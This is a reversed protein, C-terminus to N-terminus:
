SRGGHLSPISEGVAGELAILAVALDARGRAASLRVDLLVREAELLALADVRGAAYAAEASALAQKSQIPLVKELLTLRREIEPIRGELAELEREIGAITTRRSAEDALRLQTTAEVKANTATTWLPITVGGSIGLVDRGNGPVDVDTRKDVYAYTLGVSFDPSRDRTALETMGASRQIRAADAELEPRSALATLRLRTWDLEASRIPPEPSCGISAGPRERLRNLEAAIGARREDLEAQRAELRTMETQLRIADMQLGAGSAYRSRALEEFNGLTAHDDSLVRRAEDLYGMEVMLRRAESILALRLAQLQASLEQRDFGAVTERIGRKGGGPLQQSLRAAFRQPGVRTEPPLAFATVEAQPDPLKRVSVTRQSAAAIRATLAAVEPNRDLVDLLLARLDADPIGAVIRDAPGPEIHARQQDDGHSVAAVALLSLVGIIRYSLAKM